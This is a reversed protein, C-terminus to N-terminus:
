RDGVVEEELCEELEEMMKVSGIYFPTREHLETPKKDLIRQVGDTAKGGAIEM